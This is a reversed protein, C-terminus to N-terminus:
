QVQGQGRCWRSGGEAEDYRQLTVVWVVVNCGEELSKWTGDVVIEVSEM